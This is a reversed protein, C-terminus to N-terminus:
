HTKRIAWCISKIVIIVVIASFVMAQWLDGLMETQRGLWTLIWVILSLGVLLYHLDVGEIVQKFQSIGGNTDDIALVQFAVRSDFTKALM